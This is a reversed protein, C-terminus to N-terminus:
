ILLNTYAGLGQSNCCRKLKYLARSELQRVREKSLGFMNGIELLTKEKGDEIGFRLRIIQREKSNLVNLLNRIHRRMLEREVSIDPTDVESDATIEQFTTDQDAWVTQQLSQPIRSMFQLKDLKEVTIGVQAALEEKSPKYNGARVFYNKAETVKGLLGYVNEPLRITRSHEFIAKRISQRIWWYAYTAFRCGAQQKFKEVSKMLGLSGVQLLDHLSLGRGQYRKAIHVVMRLNANILKERSVRFSHLQSQLRQCTLGLAEAWEVLTPERGFQSQLRVKVNDLIMLDQVQVILKAEEEATLLKTTEPGWLFLRLPDNPDLNEGTKRRTDKRRSHNEHIITVHKPVKRKKSRRDQLRTSKVTIGEKSLSDEPSSYDVNTGVLESKGVLSAAQKSVSLAKKALAIVNEVEEKVLMERGTNNSQKEIAAIKNEGMQFSPWSSLLGPWEVAQHKLEWVLRDHDIQKGEDISVSREMLRKDLTMQYTRDDKLIQSQPRCEHHQEQSLFSTSFCRPTVQEHFMSVEQPYISNYHVEAWFSLFIVQRKKQFSPLIEICCTEKFSTMVFIKVGYWDAAAQLTVHDGWEGTMSMKELYDDYAMPVYGEYIERHSKLQNVVNERVLKHRNSTGFLQDSLARFQCNGDGKVKREVFDYVKLRDLLRQHDSTVEDISPIEGNIRPVHPAPIVQDMKWDVQSDHGHPYYSDEQGPSSCSSSAEVTEVVDEISDNESGYNRSSPNDWGLAYKSAQSPDEINSYGSAEAIELQSFEEQLTHAIIEDNEVHNVENNCHNGYYHEYFNVDHQAMDPFYESSYSSDGNFLRLGWSIADSDYDNMVM